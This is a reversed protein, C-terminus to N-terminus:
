QGGGCAPMMHKSLFENVQDAHTMNILHGGEPIAREADERILPIIRDRGGHLQHVPLDPPRFDGASGWEVIARGGWRLMDMDSDRVIEHM